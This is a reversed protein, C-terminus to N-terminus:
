ASDTNAAPLQRYCRFTGEVTDELDLTSLPDRPLWLWKQIGDYYWPQRKYSQMKDRSPIDDWYPTYPHGTVANPIELANTPPLVPQYSQIQPSPASLHMAPPLTFYRDLCRWPWAVIRFWLMEPAKTVQSVVRAKGQRAEDIQDAEIQRLRGDVHANAM